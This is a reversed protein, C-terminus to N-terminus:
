WEGLLARPFACAVRPADSNPLSAPIRFFGWRRSPRPATTAAGKSKPTSLCASASSTVKMTKDEDQPAAEAAGKKQTGGCASMCQNGRAAPTCHCLM